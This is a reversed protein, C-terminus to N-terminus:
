KQELGRKGFATMGTERDPTQQWCRLIMITATRILLLNPRLTARDTLPWWDANIFEAERAVVTM